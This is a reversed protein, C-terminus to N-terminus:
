NKLGFKCNEEIQLRLGLQGLHTCFSCVKFSVQRKTGLIGYTPAIIRKEKFKIFESNWPNSFNSSLENNVSYESKFFTTIALHLQCNQWNLSVIGKRHSICSSHQREILQVIHAICYICLSTLKDFDYISKSYLILM